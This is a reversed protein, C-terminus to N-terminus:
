CRPGPSGASRRAPPRWTAASPGSAASRRERGPRAATESGQRAARGAARREPGFRPFWQAPGPGRFPCPSTERSPRSSSPRMTALSRAATLRVVLHSGPSRRVDPAFRANGQRVGEAAFTVIVTSATTGRFPKGHSANPCHRPHPPKAADGPGRQQDSEGGATGHGPGPPGVRVATAREDHPQPAGGHGGRTETDGITAVERRPTGTGPAVTPDELGRRAATLELKQPQLDGGGTVERGNDVEARHAVAHRGPAAPKEVVTRLPPEARGGAPRKPLPGGGDRAGRTVTEIHDTGTPPLLRHGRGLSGRRSGRSRRPDPAAGRSPV